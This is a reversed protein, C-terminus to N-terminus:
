LDHSKFSYRFSLSLLAIFVLLWYLKFVLITNYLNSRIVEKSLADILGILTIFNALYKSFNWYIGDLSGFLNANKQTGLFELTSVVRLDEPAKCYLIFKFYKFSKM